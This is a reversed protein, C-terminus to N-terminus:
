RSVFWSPCSQSSPASKAGSQVWGIAVMPLTAVPWSRLTSTVEAKSVGRAVYVSAMLLVLASPVVYAERSFEVGLQCGRSVSSRSGGGTLSQHVAAVVMTATGNVTPTSVRAADASTASGIGDHV